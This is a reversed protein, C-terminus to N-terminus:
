RGWRCYNDTITITATTATTITATTATTTTTTLFLGTIWFVIVFEMAAPKHNRICMADLHRLDGTLNRRVQRYRQYLPQVDKVRSLCLKGQEVQGHALIVCLFFLYSTAQAVFKVWPM